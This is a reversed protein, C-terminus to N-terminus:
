EVSASLRHKPRALDIISRTRARLLRVVLPPQPLPALFLREVSRNVPLPPPPPMVLSAPRHVPPLARSPLAM